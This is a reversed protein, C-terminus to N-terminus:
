FMGNLREFYGVYFSIIQYAIYGAICLFLLGSLATILLRIATDAEDELINQATLLTEELKGSKEGTAILERLTGPLQWECNSAEFFTKGQQIRQRVRTFLAQMQYGNASQIVYDLATLIPLGSSYLSQLIVISEVLQQKWLFKGLIPINFLLRELAAALPPFHRLIKPAFIPIALLLYLIMLPPIVTQLYAAFGKQVWIVLAPLLFAAHLLLLPYAISYLMKSLRQAKKQWNQALRHLAEPLRGGKEGAAILKIEFGNFIRSATLAQELTGGRDIIDIARQFGRAISASESNALMYFAERIAIGSNTLTALRTYMSIRQRFM